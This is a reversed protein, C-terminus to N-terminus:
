RARWVQIGIDRLDPAETCVITGITNGMIDFLRKEVEVAHAMAGRSQDHTQSWTRRATDLEVAVQVAGFDVHQPRTINSDPLVLRCMAKLSLM